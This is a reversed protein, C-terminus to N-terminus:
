YSYRIILGFTAPEIGAPCMKKCDKELYMKVTMSFHQETSKKIKM